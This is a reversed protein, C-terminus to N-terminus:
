AVCERFLEAVAALPVMDGRSHYSCVPYPRGEEPDYRLAVATKDCPQFEGRRTVEETCENPSRLAETLDRLMEPTPASM